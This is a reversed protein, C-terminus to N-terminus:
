AARRGGRVALAHGILNWPDLVRGAGLLRSSDLAAKLHQWGFSGTREAIEVTRALLWTAGSITPSLTVNSSYRQGHYRARV